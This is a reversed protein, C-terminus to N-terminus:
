GKARRKEDEVGTDRSQTPAVKQNGFRYTFGVTVYRTDMYRKFVDAYNILNTYGATVETRFPDDISLKLSGRDKLVKQSVGASLSFVHRFYVYGEPNGSIFAADIEASTSRSITFSNNSSADFALKGTNLPTNSLDGQYVNYYVNLNNNSHWWKFIDIPATVSVGYSKYSDLNQDQQIITQPNAPDPALLLTIDKVTNSYSISFSYKQAYLWTIAGSYTLQPKLFPNGEVFFTPNLFFKFPNLQDYTPRDIRRGVTLNLENQDSLKDSFFFNPFLQIYSDRFSSDTNLQKGTAITQEARLGLRLKYQSFVKNYTAYVANINETYIFHNSLTSDIVEANNVLHKFVLDNDTKVYSTKFGAEFSRGGKLPLVYDGKAAYIRLGGSNRDSSFATPQSTSGDLNFFDTVYQDRTDNGYYAYNLDATIVQGATDLEHKMNLNATYTHKPRISEHSTHFSSVKRSATSDLVTTNDPGNPSFQSYLGTVVLGITTTNTLSYDLGAKVLDSLFPRRIVSTQISGGDIIGNSFFKRDFTIDSYNQSNLYNYSGFVNIKNSRYNLNVGYNQKSYVGQGFSGNVSGNLGYREDKKLRINIIGASGAAEFKASPNTILEIKDISNASISRLMNALDGATLNTPKGDIMVVVGPKGKMIIDDNGNVSVGPSRALAELATSGASMISNSVNIITRDELHEILPKRAIVAVEKLQSRDPQLVLRQVTISPHQADLTFVESRTRKFGIATITLYYKGPLIDEFTANGDLGTINIKITTSDNGKVLAVTAATITSDKVDVVRCTVKGSFAGQGWAQVISLLFCPTLLIIIRTNILRPMM